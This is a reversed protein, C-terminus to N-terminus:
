SSVHLIYGFAHLSGFFYPPLTGRGFRMAGNGVFDDWFHCSGLV